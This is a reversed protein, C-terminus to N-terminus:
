KSPGGADPTGVPVGYVNYFAGTLDKAPSGYVKPGPLVGRAVVLVQSGDPSWALDGPKTKFEMNENATVADLADSALDLVYLDTPSRTSRRGLVALGAGDPSVAISAPVFDEGVGRAPEYEGSEDPAAYLAYDAEEDGKKGAVFYIGRSTAQPAGIVELGEDLLAMRRPLGESFRYTVIEVRGADDGSEIRVAMAAERGDPSLSLGSIDGRLALPFSRAAEEGARVRVLASTAGDKEVAAVIAGGDARAGVARVGEALVEARPPGDPALALLFGSGEDGAETSTGLVALYEGPLWDANTASFGKATRRRLDQAYLSKEVVRHDLVFAVRDGSLNISPSSKDGPGLSLPRVGPGLDLNAAAASPAAPEIADEEVPGATSLFGCSAAGLLFCLLLAAGLPATRRKFRM